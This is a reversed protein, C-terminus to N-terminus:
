HHADNTALRIPETNPLPVNADARTEEILVRAFVESIDTKIGATSM